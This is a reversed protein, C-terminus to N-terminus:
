IRDSSDEQNRRYKYFKFTTTIETRIISSLTYRVTMKIFQMEGAMLTLKLSM